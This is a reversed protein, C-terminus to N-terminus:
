KYGMLAVENVSTKIDIVTSFLSGGKSIHLQMHEKTDREWM